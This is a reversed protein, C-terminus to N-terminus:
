VCWDVQQIREIRDSATATSLVALGPEYGPILQSLLATCATSWTQNPPLEGVQRMRNALYNGVRPMQEALRFDEDLQESEEPTENPDRDRDVEPEEPKEFMRRQVKRPRVGEDCLRGLEFVQLRDPGLNKRLLNRVQDLSDEFDKILRDRWRYTPYEEGLLDLLHKLELLDEDHADRGFYLDLSLRVGEFEADAQDASSSSIQRTTAALDDLTKKVIAYQGYAVDHMGVAYLVFAQAGHFSFRNFSRGLQYALVHPNSNLYDSLGEIVSKATDADCVAKQPNPPNSM